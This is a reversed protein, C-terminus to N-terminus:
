DFASKVRKEKYVVIIRVSVKVTDISHKCYSRTIWHILLYFYTNVWHETIM